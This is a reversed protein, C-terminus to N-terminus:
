KSADISKSKYGRPLTIHPEAGYEPLVLQQNEGALLRKLGALQWGSGTSGVVPVNLGYALSNAVTLGIRLGTFSGPGQYAVVGGIDAWDLKNKKLLKLIQQHITEALQRHAQWSHYTIQQDNEYLGVEAEPQDTRLSLIIM